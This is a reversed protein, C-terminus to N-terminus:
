KKQETTEELIDTNLRNKEKTIKALENNARQLFNKDKLISFYTKLRKIPEIAFRFLAIIIIFSTLIAIIVNIIWPSSVATIVNSLLMILAVIFAIGSFVVEKILYPKLPTIRNQTIKFYHTLLDLQTLEILNHADANVLSIAISEKDINGAQYFCVKEWILKKKINNLYDIQYKPQPTKGLIDAYKIINDFYDNQTRKKLIFIAFSLVFIIVLNFWNDHLLESLEM